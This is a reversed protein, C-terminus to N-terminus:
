LWFPLLKKSALIRNQQEQEQGGGLKTTISSSSSSSSTQLKLLNEKTFLNAFNPGFGFLLRINNKIIKILSENKSSCNRIWEKAKKEEEKQQDSFVVVWVMEFQRLFMWLSWVRSAKEFDDLEKKEETQMKPIKPGITFFSDSKSDYFVKGLGYKMVAELLSRLQSEFFLARRTNTKDQFLCNYQKIGLQDIGQAQM